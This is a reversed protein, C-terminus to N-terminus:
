TSNSTMDLMFELAKKARYKKGTQDAVEARLKIAGSYGQELLVRKIEAEETWVMCSKGEKLEHPFPVSAKLPPFFLIKENPLRIYPFSITVSRYGPNAVDILLMPESLKQPYPHWGMSMNLRLQRRKEKRTALFTITSLIAGYLAVLATILAAWHGGIWKIM